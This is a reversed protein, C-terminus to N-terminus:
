LTIRPEIANLLQKLCFAIDNKSTDVTIFASQPAEYPSSIGTFDPIEGRRAKAYLGKVDRAECVDLPCHVHVELFDEAGIITRALTRLAETPSVFCNITILGADVMLKSVEAIRRINELRDQESFGLGKNLGHRINDGDLVYVMHGSNFLARELAHALTTKGSGSLGTMWIVRGRQKLKQERDGRPMFTDVKFLNTSM